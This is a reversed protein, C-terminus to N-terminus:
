RKSGWRPVPVSCEGAEPSTMSGSVLTRAVRTGAKQLIVGVEAFMAFPEMLPTVGM